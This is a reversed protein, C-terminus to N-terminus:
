CSRRAEPPDGSPAFSLFDNSSGTPTARCRSCHSRSAELISVQGPAGQSQVLRTARCPASLRESRPTPSAIFAAVSAVLPAVNRMSPAANIRTMQRMTSTVLLGCSSSDRPLFVVHTAAENPHSSKPIMTRRSRIRPCAAKHATPTPVPPRPLVGTHLNDLLVAPLTDADAYPRKRREGRLPEQLNKPPRQPPRRGWFHGCVSACGEHVRQDPSDCGAHTSSDGPEQRYSRSRRNPLSCRV